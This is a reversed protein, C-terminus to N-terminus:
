ACGHAIMEHLYRNLTASAVPEVGDLVLTLAATDPDYRHVSSELPLLAGAGATPVLVRMTTRDEPKLNGYYAVIKIGHLNWDDIAYPTAGVVATLPASVRKARRREVPVSATRQESM